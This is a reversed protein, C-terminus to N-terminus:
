AAVVPDSAAMLWVRAITQGDGGGTVIGAVTFTLTDAIPYLVGIGNNAAPTLLGGQGYGSGGYQLFDYNTGAEHASNPNYPVSSFAATESNYYGVPDGTDGVSLLPPDAWPGIIPILAIDLVTAGAPIPVTATLDAHAGGPENFVVDVKYIAGPQSGGSVSLDVTPGTPDTITVSM